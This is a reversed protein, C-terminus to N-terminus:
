FNQMVQVAIISAKILIAGYCILVILAISTMILTMVIILSSVNENSGYGITTGNETINISAIPKEWFSAFGFGASLFWHLFIAIKM